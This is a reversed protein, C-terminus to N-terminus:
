KVWLHPRLLTSRSTITVFSYDMNGWLELFPIEGDPPKTDYGLNQNLLHVASTCNAYEKAGTLQTKSKIDM